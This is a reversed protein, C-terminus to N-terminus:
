VCRIMDEAIRAIYLFAGNGKFLDLSIGFLLQKGAFLLFCILLLQFGPLGLHINLDICVTDVQGFIFGFSGACRGAISGAALM